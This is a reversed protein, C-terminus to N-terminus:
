GLNAPRSRIWNFSICLHCICTPKVGLPGKQFHGGLDTSSSVGLKEDVICQYLDNYSKPQGSVNVSLGVQIGVVIKIFKSYSITAKLLKPLRFFASIAVLSLLLHDTWTDSRLLWWLGSMFLVMIAFSYTCHKPHHGSPEPVCHTNCSM